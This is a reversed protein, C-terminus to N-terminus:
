LRKVPRYKGTSEFYSFRKLLGYLQEVPLGMVNYFSGSISEIFLSAVGQIAYGGAKDFWEGIEIYRDIEAPEMATFRVSTECVSSHRVGSAADTVTIGSLVTHTVPFLPYNTYVFACITDPHFVCGWISPVSTRDPPCQALRGSEDRMWMKGGAELDPETTTVRFFRYDPETCRLLPADVWEITTLVQEPDDVVTVTM